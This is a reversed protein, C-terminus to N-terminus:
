QGSVEEEIKFYKKCDKCQWTKILLYVWTEPNDDDIWFVKENSLHCHPCVVDFVQTDIKVTKFKM